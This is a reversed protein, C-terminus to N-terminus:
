RRVKFRFAGRQRHGDAAVASWSAHYRGAKLGRRLEVIVRAVNRPDRGGQGVSVTRHGPGVVRITGRRIPGTFTVSASRVSSSVTRGKAPSTSKLEVHALAPSVAVTCTLVATLPALRHMRM